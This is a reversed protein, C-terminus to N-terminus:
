YCASLQWYCVVDFWNLSRNLYLLQNMSSRCSEPELYLRMPRMHLPVISVLNLEVVSPVETNMHPFKQVSLITPDSMEWIISYKKSIFKYYFLILTVLDANIFHSLVSTWRYASSSILHWPCFSSIQFFLKIFVQVTWFNASIILQM